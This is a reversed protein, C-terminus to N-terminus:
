SLSAFHMNQLETEACQYDDLFRAIARENDFALDVFLASVWGDQQHLVRVSTNISRQAEGLKICIPVVQGQLYLANSQFSLGAIGVRADCTIDEGSQFLTIAVFRRNSARREERLMTGANMTQGGKQAGAPQKAARLFHDANLESILLRQALGMLLDSRKKTNSKIQKKAFNALSPM